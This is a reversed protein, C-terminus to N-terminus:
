GRESFDVCFVCVCVCVCVFFSCGTGLGGRPRASFEARRWGDAKALGGSRRGRPRRSRLLPGHGYLKGRHSCDFLRPAAGIEPSPAVGASRAVFQRSKSSRASGAASSGDSSRLNSKVLSGDDTSPMRSVSEASSQRLARCTRPHYTRAAADPPRMASPRSRRSVELSSRSAMASPDIALPRQCNGQPSTTSKGAPRM